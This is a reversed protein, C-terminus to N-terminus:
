KCWCVARPCRQMPSIRRGGVVESQRRKCYFVRTIAKEAAAVWGRFVGQGAKAAQRPVLLKPNMEDRRAGDQRQNWEGTQPGRCTYDHHITLLPLVLDAQPVFRGHQRRSEGRYALLARDPSALGDNRSSVLRTAKRYSFVLGARAARGRAEQEGDVGCPSNQLCGILCLTTSLSPEITMMTMMMM